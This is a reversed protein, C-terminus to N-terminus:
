SRAGASFRMPDLRRAAGGTWTALSYTAAMFSRSRASIQMVEPPSSIAPSGAAPSKLSASTGPTPTAGTSALPVLHARQQCTSCSTPLDASCGSSQSRQSSATAAHHPADIALRHGQDDDGQDSVLEGLLEQEAVQHRGLAGYHRHDVAEEPQHDHPIAADAEAQHAAVPRQRGPHQRGHRDGHADAEEQPQSSGVSGECAPADTKDHSAGDTINDIAGPPSRHEIKGIEMNAVPMPRREVDGIRRDNDADTQHEDIGEDAFSLTRGSAAMIPPCFCLGFSSRHSPRDQYRCTKRGEAGKRQAAAAYELVETAGLFHRGILEF